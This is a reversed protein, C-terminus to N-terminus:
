EELCKNYCLAALISGIVPGVWYLWLNNFGGGMIATRINEPISSISANIEEISKSELDSNGEIAANLKSVYAAHHKGHHIEMTKADIQPELADTAYPLDPLTHAM